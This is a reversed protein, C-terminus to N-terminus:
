AREVANASLWLRPNYIYIIHSCCKLRGRLSAALCSPMQAVAMLFACVCVCVCVLGAVRMQAVAMLFALVCVRARACVCLGRTHASGFLFFATHTYQGIQAVARM